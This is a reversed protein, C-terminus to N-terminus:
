NKCNMPSKSPKQKGQEKAISVKITRGNLASGNLAQMADNASAPDTMEIFAFGKSRKTDKDIVLNVSDVDGFQAFTDEIDKQTLIFPLNGAYLKM